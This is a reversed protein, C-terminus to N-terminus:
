KGKGLFIIRITHVMIKFDLLLSANEVYLLDYEMREIMQEVTSAYGFQVMGWSTLGPKVKLLFSYYPNKKKIEEIYYAREPRPGVLSMEGKMINWCQPLEDIRWKRMTKGWSTIRPDDDSSLAPGNAEADTYMSRFKVISFPRGKYGIRKQLFLVPGPSSLKVRIAAIVFLPSFIILIFIASIIDILRKTNQQWGQLPNTHMRIFQGQLVEGAKVSGSIIDIIGPVLFIDTDKEALISLVKTANEEDKELAIIVKDVAYQHIVADIHSIDGLKKSHFSLQDNGNEKDSLYGIVNWGTIHADKEIAKFAKKAKESSGIILTNFRIIGKALQRGSKSIWFFRGALIVVTQLVYLSAFVKYYYDIQIVKEIDDLLLLFFIFTVGPLHILIIRVLENLKSKEYLSENYHGALLYITLWVFPIGLIGGTFVPERFIDEAFIDAYILYQRWFFFIAWIFLSLTYDTVVVRNMPIKRTSPM